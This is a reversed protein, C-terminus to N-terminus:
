AIASAAAPRALRLYVRLLSQAYHSWRFQAARAVGAERIEERECPSLREDVLALVTDRWSGVSGLPCYRVADGGVERFVDLDTAVVPTGCALAEALPLGFGERDSTALLVGARRYLASLVAPELFPLQQIHSSLGLSHARAVQEETLRGGAKLLRVAPRVARIAAVVELLQDIRKRPITTGVHLLELADSRAGLLRDVAADAAPDALTSFAEDVGNHVVALREEGVLEFRRVDDYTARSDCLVFAAKQMGSLVRRTIAKPLRSRIIRPQLVPMFADIDHCTVVTRAAPLVHVLHAYSHDIVHFVDFADAHQRLWAPYDWFRNLYRGFRRGRTVLTPRLMEVHVNAAPALQHLQAMLSNAVLDMSPWQEELLDAVIAIRTM